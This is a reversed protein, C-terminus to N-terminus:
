LGDPANACATPQTQLQPVSMLYGRLTRIVIRDCYERILEAREIKDAMGERYRFTKQPYSKEKELSAADLALDLSHALLGASLRWLKEGENATWYPQPYLEGIPGSVVRVVNQYSAAAANAARISLSNDLVLARQDQTMSFVLGSEIVKGAAPQQSSSVLAKRGGTSTRDLGRQM